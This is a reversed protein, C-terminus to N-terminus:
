YVFCHMFNFTILYIFTKLEGEEGVGEAGGAVSM